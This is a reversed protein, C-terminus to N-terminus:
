ANNTGSPNFSSARCSSVTVQCLLRAENSAVHGAGIFPLRYQEPHLAVQLQHWSEAQM